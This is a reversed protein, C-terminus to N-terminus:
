CTKLHTEVQTSRFSARHCLRHFHSRGFQVRRCRLDVIVCIIEGCGMPRRVPSGTFRRQTRAQRSGCKRRHQARPLDIARPGTLLESLVRVAVPRSGVGERLCIVSACFSDRTYARL